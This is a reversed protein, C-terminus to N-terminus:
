GFKTTPSYCKVQVFIHFNISFVRIKEIFNCVFYIAGTVIHVQECFIDVNNALLGYELRIQQNM